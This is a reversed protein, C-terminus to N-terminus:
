AVRVDGETPKMLKMGDRRWPIENGTSKQFKRENISVHDRFRFKYRIIIQTATTRFVKAKFSPQGFPRYVEVVDGVKLQSLWEEDHM